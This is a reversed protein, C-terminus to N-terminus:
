QGVVLSKRNASVPTQATKELLHEMISSDFFLGTSSVLFTFGELDVHDFYM